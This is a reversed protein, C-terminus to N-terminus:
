VNDILYEIFDSDNLGNMMYDRFHHVLEIEKLNKLEPFSDKLIELSYVPSKLFKEVIDRYYIEEVAKLESIFDKAKFIEDDIHTKM